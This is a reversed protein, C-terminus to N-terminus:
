RQDAEWDRHPGSSCLDCRIPGEAKSRKRAPRRDREEIRDAGDCRHTVAKIQCNLKFHPLPKQGQAASLIEAFSHGSGAFLDDAKAPDWTASFKMGHTPVLSQDAFTVLPRGWAAGQRAWPIEMDKPNPISIMGIAGAQHLANWREKGSSYHSRLNGSINDPGGTLFAVIAGKVDLGQLDDFHAEPIGLGYGAFVVPATLSPASDAGYRLQAEGPIPSRHRAGAEFSRLARSRPTLRSRQSSCASSTTGKEARSCDRVSLSNQSMPPLRRLARRASM